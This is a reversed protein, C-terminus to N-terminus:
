IEKNREFTVIIDYNTTREMVNKVEWNDSAMKNM